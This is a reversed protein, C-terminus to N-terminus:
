WASTLIQNIGVCFASLSGESKKKEKKRGPTPRIFFYVSFISEFDMNGKKKFRLNFDLTMDSLCGHVQTPRIAADHAQIGTDTGYSTYACRGHM